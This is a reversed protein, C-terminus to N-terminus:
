KPSQLSDDTFRPFKSVMYQSGVDTLHSIEWASLTEQTDGFRTICGDDNCLIARPSIYNIRQIKAFEAMQTDTRMFDQNLGFKMRYPITHFRDQKFFLYLQKPLGGDWYPKPGVLDINEVGIKKLQSITEELKKWDIGAEDYAVWFASLVVRDPKNKQAYEFIYDNTQKCFKRDAIEMHLIPPCASATRQVINFEKGFYKQYGSYLDAAHSDGWLLLTKKDKSIPTACKSFATYDQEPNLLCTGVRYGAGYNYQYSTLKQILPPFRFGLGNWRYTGYGACGVALMLLILGITKIANHKGFRIPKEVLRYTLWALAISALILTSQMAASPTESETIRAFSLLPWHWLYLPYSIIGFWVLVRNSLIKRNLWVEPGASIIFAAGLTPLLAWTGPLHREKTILLVGAGILLLGLLSQMNRLMTDNTVPALKQTAARFANPKYLAEYALLSGILLEWFRTQPSYFTAVVDSRVGKVNLAFSITAIVITVLLWNFRQKWTVWLLLPWLIYFQEEIGLSWLHLLPKTEAAKDFYGSENWLVFNSIFGAGGAIHEGLQKYEDPLLTVWGFTLCAVLVLILAPFIRKIRRSYFQIFSFSDRQLNQFIITSILYGSIVFFIDVGIFGGKVWMPFAHYVVVALIAIARLGDIDARYKPHTLHPSHIIKTTRPM